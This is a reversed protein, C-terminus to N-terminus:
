MEKEISDNNQIASYKNTKQYNERKLKPNTIELPTYYPTENNAKKKSRRLRNQPESPSRDLTSLTDSVKRRSEQIKM